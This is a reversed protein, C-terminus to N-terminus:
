LVLSPPSYVRAGLEVDLLYLGKPDNGFLEFKKCLDGANKEEEGQEKVFWDLFQVTQYDRSALAQEYIINILDTVYREHTLGAQLPEQLSTYNLVPEDIAELKVSADNNLVYRRFLMAHDMEEKAQIEYWNAFGNLNQDEYYNAIALYLYASYLEKGIQQNLLFTIKENTM